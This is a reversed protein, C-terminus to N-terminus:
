NYDYSTMQDNSLCILYEFTRMYTSSNLYFVSLYAPTWSRVNQKQIAKEFLEKMKEILLHDQEKKAEEIREKTWMVRYSSIYQEMAELRTM